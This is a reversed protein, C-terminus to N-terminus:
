DWAQPDMDLRAAEERSKGNLIIIEPSSSSGQLSQPADLCSGSSRMADLLGLEIADTANTLH